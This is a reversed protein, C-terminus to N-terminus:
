KRLEILTHGVNPLKTVLGIRYVGSADPLDSIITVTRDERPVDAM